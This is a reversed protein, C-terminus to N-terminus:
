VYLLKINTFFKFDTLMSIFVIFKSVEVRRSARGRNLVCVKIGPIKLGSSYIVFSARTAFKPRINCTNASKVKIQQIETHRHTRNDPYTHTHTCPETHGQKHTNTHTYTHTNCQSQETHTHAHTNTHTKRYILPNM